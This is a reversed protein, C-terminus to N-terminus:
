LFMLVPGVVVLEVMKQGVATPDLLRYAGYGMLCVAILYLLTRWRLYLAAVVVTITM